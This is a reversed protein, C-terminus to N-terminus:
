VALWGALEGSLFVSFVSVCMSLPVSLSVQRCHTQTKRTQVVFSHLSFSVAVCASASLYLRACVSMYLSLAPPALRLCVCAHACACM